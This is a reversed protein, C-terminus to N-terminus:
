SSIMFSLARGADQSQGADFRDLYASSVALLQAERMRDVHLRVFSALLSKILRETDLARSPISVNYGTNGGRM